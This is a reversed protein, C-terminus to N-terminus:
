KSGGYHKGLAVVSEYLCGTKIKAAANDKARGDNFMAQYGEVNDLQFRVNHIFEATTQPDKIYGQEPIM